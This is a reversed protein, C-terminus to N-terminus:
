KPLIRTMTKTSWYNKTFWFFLVFKLGGSMASAFDVLGTEFLSGNAILTFSLVVAIPGKELLKGVWIFLGAFILCEIVLSAFGNWIIGEAIMGQALSVSSLRSGPISVNTVSQNWIQGFSLSYRGSSPNWELSKLIYILWSKGGGLAGSGAFHADTVRAFQDFRIAMSSLPKLYFPFEGSFRTEYEYAVSGLHRVQLLYFLPTSAGAISIGVATKKLIQGESAWISLTAFYTVLPVLLVGKTNGSQISVLLTGFTGLLIISVNKQQSFKLDKRKWFYTSLIVPPLSAISKSIPNQYNTQEIFLAVLGCVEGMMIFRFYNVSASKLHPVALPRSEKFIFILIPMCFIFCGIIIPFMIERFHTQNQGIRFDYIVSDINHDRSYLFMLPRIFFSLMWYGGLLLLIFKLGSRAKSAIYILLVIDCIIGVM